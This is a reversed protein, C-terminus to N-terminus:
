AKRRRALVGLGALAGLATLAISSPEPVLIDARVRMAVMSFRGTSPDAATGIDRADSGLFNFDTRGSQNRYYFNNDDRNPNTPVSGVLPDTNGPGGRVGVLLNNTSVLGSGTDGQVNFSIGLNNFNSLVIPTTFTFNVGISAIPGITTAGQVFTQVPRPSSFVTSSGSVADTSNDWLCVNVVINNYTVQNQAVIRFDVGTIALFGTDSLGTDFAQGMFTRPTANPFAINARNTLSDFVVVDAKTATQGIAFIAVISALVYISRSTRM